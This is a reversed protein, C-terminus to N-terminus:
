VLRRMDRVGMFAMYEVYSAYDSKLTDAWTDLEDIKDEVNNFLTATITDGTVWTTKTYDGIAM